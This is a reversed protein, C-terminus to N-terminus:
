LTELSSPLLYPLSAPGEGSGWVGECADDSGWEGECVDGSGRGWVGECVDATCCWTWHNWDSRGRGRERGRGRGWVRM